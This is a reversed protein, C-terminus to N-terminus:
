DALRLSARGAAFVLVLAALSLTAGILFTVGSWPAPRGPAVTWAFAQTFAIPAIVSTLSSISGIAGQLRGQEDPGVKASIISQLAPGAVAGLVGGINAVWFLAGTPALGIAALGAVQLTLGILVARRDGFWRAVRGTLGTQMAISALALVAAFLGFTLATWGYRWTTYLVLMNSTGQFALWLLFQALGLVALGPTRVLLDVAALPNATRWRLLARDAPALSEPLVVAGYIGAAFAVGAAAWFPARIDLGALLGGLAPGAIIGSWMAATMWGYGRTRQEPPTVDAVYAMAAAQGGCTLGCLIRALLLWGITPALASLVLEAGVGFVSLVIVPRRGFRDSLMGLVTAAFFQPIAWAVELYGTWRSAAALDGGLLHQALRPLVPFSISQALYDLCVSVAVFALAARRARRPTDSPPMLASMLVPAPAPM